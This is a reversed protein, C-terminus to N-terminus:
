IDCPVEEAGEGKAPRHRPGKMFWFKKLFNPEREGEETLGREGEESLCGM